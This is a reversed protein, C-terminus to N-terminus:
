EEPCHGPARLRIRKRRHDLPTRHPRSTATSREARPSRRAPALLVPDEPEHRDLTATRCALLTLLGDRDPRHIGAVRREVACSWTSGHTRDRSTTANPSTPRRDPAKPTSGHQPSQTVTVSTYTRRSPPTAPRGPRGRRGPQPPSGPRGHPGGTPEPTWPGSRGPSAYM